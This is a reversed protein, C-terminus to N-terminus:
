FGKKKPFITYNLLGNKEHRKLNLNEIEKKDAKIGAQYEKTELIADVKLGSKTKTTKIYKVVTEFDKLPVGHWNKSIESFLRHEIPNWKSAGAPYHCITVELNHKNCLREQIKVKWMNCRYGNSGGSDVLILLKNESYKNKKGKALWWSEISEVAFEPTDSSLFKNTKKDKIFQGVVVFGENNFLDYIGYPAAKGKCYTIFDHDNVLDSKKKYVTGNNKFNGILEKKKTDASIIPCNIKYFKEQIKKIYEFQENRKEKAEVTLKKGGNSIKKSNSKLTYNLEKLIKGVTTSSVNINELKLEDSIKERTKHTWKLGSIPDGATEYKM